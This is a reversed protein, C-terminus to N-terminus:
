NIKMVAQGTCQLFNRSSFICSTAILLQWRRRAAAFRLASVESYTCGGPFVVVVPQKVLRSSICDRLLRRNLGREDMTNPQTSSEGSLNVLGLSSAADATLGLHKLSEVLNERGILEPDNSCSGRSQSGESCRTSPGGDGTFQAYTAWISEVLRVVIPCHEGSFVYTPSIPAQDFRRNTQGPHSLHLLHHLRNYLSKRRTSLALRSVASSLSHVSHAGRDPSHKDPTYSSFLRLCRFTFLMPFAAQGIAHLFASHVASYVEDSLGDHTVSALSALRLGDLLRAGRHTSLLEIILRVPMSTLSDAATRCSGGAGPVLAAASGSSHESENIPADKDNVSALRGGSGSRLLITQAARIDEVRERRTMVDMIHELILSLFTLEKRKELLPRFLTNLQKLTCTNNSAGPLSPSGLVLDSSQQLEAQMAQLSKSWAALVTHVQSIHSDRVDKYYHLKETTLLQKRMSKDPCISEPLEVVGLNIGIVDHILAEFTMPLLMPTVYDLDRSFIIVLPVHPYGSASPDLSSKSDSGRSGDKGGSKAERLLSSRTFHVRIGSAVIEAARGIAHIQSCLAASIRKYALELLEGLELGMFQTLVYDDFLYQDIFLSPLDLSVLDSEVNIWGFSLSGTCMNTNYAGTSELLYRSDETEEPVFLVLRNRRIENAKDIECHHVVRLTSSYTPPILYAVRILDAKPPADDIKFVKIVGMRRLVAMNGIRDLSRILTQDVLLVKFVVSGNKAM